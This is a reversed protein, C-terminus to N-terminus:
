KKGGAPFSYFYTRIEGNYIKRNKAAKKGMIKEMDDYSTIVYSSYGSMGEIVQGLELYLPALEKKDLLRVGYPPNTILIGRDCSTEYEKLFDGVACKRFRVLSRVGAEAANMGATKIMKEDIDCGLIEPKVSLDVLDRAEEYAAYWLKNDIVNTWLDSTFERNMGPAMNAAIMAAEIPFTGSGCFPDALAERGRYHALQLLAAALNEALPAQSPIKRYGRKHLSVGTTDLAATVVDKKIFIRVPYEDGDEPFRSIGYKSELRRVMAKKVISQIDSPSFLKSNKSAAKTVWFKGNQPIFREWPLAAINDFLEEFSEAKFEGVSLLIREASRIFINARPVADPGGEFTVRGDDVGAIDYGLRKIENKLVAERGFRCPGILRFVESETRNFNM